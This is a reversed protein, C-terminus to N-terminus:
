SSHNKKNNLAEQEDKYKSKFGADILWVVLCIFGAIIALVGVIIYVIIDFWSM